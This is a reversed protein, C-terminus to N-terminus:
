DCEWNFNSLKDKKADTLNYHWWESDFSEFGYKLMIKKLMKRNKIVESSLNSFFHSSEPGFHDFKTGMDLEKGNKDVLTIDVAGGRNHISGRKPNAVYTANPVIEWMRKQVDLPRYCDFLKIKYGKKIFEKNAEVLSKITKSRLYCSGCDYVKSKLFNDDTAYKMDLIFDKSYDSLNVFVSDNVLKNLMSIDNSKSFTSEAILNTNTATKCSFLTFIYISALMRKLKM